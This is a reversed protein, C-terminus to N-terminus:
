LNIPLIDRALEERNPVARYRLVKYGAEKLMNDRAQDKEEKGDHSKDDLEIVALIKFDWDTVVFDAIKKNFKNRTQWSSTWLIAGFSVQAFVHCDPLQKLVRFMIKEHETMLHSSKIPTDPPKVASLAKKDTKKNQMALMATYGGILVVVLVTILMLGM